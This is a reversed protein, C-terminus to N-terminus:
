YFFRRLLFIRYNVQIHELTGKDAALNRENEKEEFKIKLDEYENNIIQLQRDLDDAQKTKEFFLQNNEKLDNELQHNNENLIKNENIKTELLDSLQEHQKSLVSYRQDQTENLNNLQKKHEDIDIQLLRINEDRELLHFGQREYDTKLQNQIEQQENFQDELTSFKEKLLDYESQIQETLLYKEQLEDYKTKDIRLSLSNSSNISSFCVM